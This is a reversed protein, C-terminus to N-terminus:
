LKLLGAEALRAVLEARSDVDMKRFIRKLAEKVTNRSIVLCGAIEYNNLGTAVLRAIELERATLGPENAARESRRQGLWSLPDDGRRQRFGAELTQADIGAARVIDVLAIDEDAHGDIYEEARRMHQVNDGPRAPAAERDALSLFLSMLTQEAARSTTKNHLISEPSMSEAHLFRVYRRLSAGKGGAVPLAEPLLRRTDVDGQDGLVRAHEELAKKDIRILLVRTGNHMAVRLPAAPNVVHMDGEHYVRERELCSAGFSGSHGCQILYSDEVPDVKVDIEPGVSVVSFGVGGLQHHEIRGLYRVPRPRFECPRINRGIVERLEDLDPSQFHFSFGQKPPAESM